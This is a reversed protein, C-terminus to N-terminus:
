VISAGRHNLICDWLHICLSCTSSSSVKFYIRKFVASFRKTNRLIGKELYEHSHEAEEESEM